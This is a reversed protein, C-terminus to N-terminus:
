PFKFSHTLMSLLLLLVAAGLIGACWKWLLVWPKMENIDKRQCSQIEYINLLAGFLLDDRLKDPIRQGNDIFQKIITIATPSGKTPTM